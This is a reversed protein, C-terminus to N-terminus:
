KKIIGRAKKVASTAKKAREANFTRYSIISSTVLMSSNCLPCRQREEQSYVVRTDYISWEGCEGCQKYVDYAHPADPDFEDMENTTPVRNERIADELWAM